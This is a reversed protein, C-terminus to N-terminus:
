ALALRSGSQRAKLLCELCVQWPLGPLAYSAREAGVFSKTSARVTITGPCQVTINGGEITISAGGKTALVIKKAAAWDIHASKSQISVDDKAAIQLNDSQAQVEVQGRGAILTIGKGSAQNGVGVVGIAGALVGIAQGSHIRMAGGTVLNADSGSGLLVTEGASLVVDQGAVIALGTKASIAVVPDTTHPLKGEATGTNRAAADGTAADLSAASVMGKLATHLAAAPAEKESLASQGAKFSGLHSAFQVAQHTKAAESFTKALAKLQAALAIGAANDGAPESPQIGFTSLLVGHAGRVTHRVSAHAIAVDTCAEDARCQM